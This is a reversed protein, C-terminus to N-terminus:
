FNYRTGLGFTIKIDNYFRPYVKPVYSRNFYYEGMVEATIDWNGTVPVAMLIGAALGASFKGSRDPGCYRFDTGGAIEGKALSTSQAMITSFVTGAEIYMNLVNRKDFGTWLNTLNMMYLLQIDMQHLRSNVNGRYRREMGSVSVAYPQNTLMRSQMDYVFNARVSSLRSLDYGASLGVSPQISTGGASLRLSQLMKSGGVSGGVWLGRHSMLEPDSPRKSERSEKAPRLIRTGVSVTFMRDSFAEDIDLLGNYRSYNSVDYRPELYLQIQDSLRYLLAASTTFGVYSGTFSGTKHMGGFNLGASLTMDWRPATEAERRSKLLELPNLMLEARGGVMLQSYYVSYPAHVQIGSVPETVAEVDHKRYYTQQGTLGFRAGLVGNFWYGVSMAMNCGSAHTGLKTDLPMTWGYSAGLEWGKQWPKADPARFFDGLRKEDFYYRSGVTLGYKIGNLRGKNGPNVGTLFNYQGLAEATIEYDPAVRLAAMLSLAVGPSAKGTNDRGVKYLDMAPLKRQQEEVWSNSQNVVCSLTPGATLWLNFRRDSNYGQFLNNLNLMYSLRLDMLDFASNWLGSGRYLKGDHDCGTYSNSQTDYLRQYSLQARFSAFRKWDYGLSLGVTPNIGLGGTTVSESRQWKVGGVDLGVWWRPVFEDNAGDAYSAGTMYLRTGVNFSINHEVNLQSNNTNVYPVNYMAALYRPEVFIYTGPNAIRFLAQLAGTFGYYYCRFTGNTTNSVGAKTHWGFDGGLMINLDFNHGGKANRWNKSFNLPNLLVEARGSMFAQNKAVSVPAGYINDAVFSWRSTQAQAGIRLGLMPNIWMGVAMQYGHGARHMLGGGKGPVVVGISSDFFFHRYVSDAQVFNDARKDLTMQLGVNAGYMLNWKEQNTRGFLADMNRHVGVYPEVFFAFNSSLHLDAHAGIHAYPSFRVPFGGRNLRVGFGVISSVDILRKPDYGWAFNTLNAMYDVGAGISKSKKHNVGYEFTTMNGHVRISHVPTFKYGLYMNFGANRVSSVNDSLWQFGGGVGLYFRRWWQSPFLSDKESPRYRKQLQVDEPRFSVTRVLTDMFSTDSKAVGVNETTDRVSASTDAENQAVANLSFAFLSYIFCRTGGYMVASWICQIRHCHRLIM